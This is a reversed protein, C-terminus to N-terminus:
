EEKPMRIGAAVRALGAPLITSYEGATKSGAQGEAIAGGSVPVKAAGTGGMQEIRSQLETVAAQLVDAGAKAATLEGVHKTAAAALETAHKSVLQGVYEGYCEVVPKGASFWQAGLEGGFRTVYDHAEAQLEARLEKATKTAESMASEKPTIHSPNAIRGVPQLVTVNVEADSRDAAFEASTRSDMGYPCLAVGRLTWQRFILAPGQLPQGNCMATIGSQVEEVAGNDFKISCEYPQGQAARALVEAARDGDAVSFVTGDCCLAGSGADIGEVYGILERPDHMYDLNLRGRPLVMGGFDHYIAGLYPHIVPDGSRATLKCAGAPTDAIPTDSDATEADDEATEDEPVDDEPVDEGAALAKGSLAPAEGNASQPLAFECVGLRLRMASAPIKRTTAM